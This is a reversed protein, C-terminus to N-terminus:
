ARPVSPTPALGPRGAGTAGGGEDVNADAWAGSASTVVEKRDHQCLDVGAFRRACWLGHCPERVVDARTDRPGSRPPGVACPTGFDPLPVGFRCKTECRDPDVTSGYFPADIDPRLVSWVRVSWNPEATATAATRSMAGCI